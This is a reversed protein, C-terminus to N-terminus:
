AAHNAKSSQARASDIRDRALAAYQRNLEIGIWDRGLSQAVLGVTGAGFFPDLVLGPQWGARCRCTPRLVRGLHDSTKGTKASVPRAAHESHAPVADAESQRRQWPAGCRHCVREPCSALVPREVLKTPFSAFHKGRFNATAFTWVDGPNKGL